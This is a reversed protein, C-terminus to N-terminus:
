VWSGEGLFGPERLSWGRRQDEPNAACGFTARFIDLAIVQAEWNYIM